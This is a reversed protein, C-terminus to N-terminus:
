RLYIGKVKFPYLYTKQSAALHVLPEKNRPIISDLGQFNVSYDATQLQWPLHDISAEIIRKGKIGYFHYRETLWYALSDQNPYYLQSAPKVNMYFQAENSVKPLTMFCSATEKNSHTAFHADEYPLSLLTRAAIRSLKSNTYIKLFYVGPMGNFRIYTRVNLQWLPGLSFFQRGVRPYTKTAQFPVVSVWTENNFTDLEFPSPVLARLTDYPVRWHFFAPTKWYQVGIWPLNM